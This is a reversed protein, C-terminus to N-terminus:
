RQVQILTSFHQQPSFYIAPFKYLFPSRVEKKLKQCHLFHIVCGIVQLDFLTLEWQFSKIVIYTECTLVTKSTITESQFVKLDEAYPLELAMWLQTTSCLEELWKFIYVGNEKLISTYIIYLIIYVPTCTYLIAIWM